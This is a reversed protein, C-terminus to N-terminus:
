PAARTSRVLVPAVILACCTTCVAWSACLVVLSGSQAGIVAATLEAATWLLIEVAARRRKGQLRRLVVFHDRVVLAPLAALLILLIPLSERAYGSGFIALVWRGLLAAGLIAAASFAFGWSMTRRGDRRFGEADGATAFLSVSLFLPIAYLSSTLLQAQGFYATREPPMSAAVVLPLLLTGSSIALTLGYHELSVRWYDNMVRWQDRPGAGTGTGTGSPLHRTLRPLLLLLSVALGVAWAIVIITGSRAGLAVAAALVVVRLLAALMNRWLQVRSRGIGIAAHDFVVCAATIGAAAIVAAMSTSPIHGLTGPLTIVSSLVLLGTAIAASGGAGVTLSAALLSRRDSEPVHKFREILLTNVGFVGFLAIVGVATVLAFGIGVQGTDFSRAAIAWFVFGSIAISAQSGVLSAFTAFLGDPKPSIRGGTM